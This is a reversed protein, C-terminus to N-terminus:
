RQLKGGTSSPPWEVISEYYLMGSPLILFFAQLSFLLGLTCRVPETFILSSCKSKEFPSGSTGSLDLTFFKIDIKSPPPQYIPLKYLGALSLANVLFFMRAPHDFLANNGILGSVTSLSIGLGAAVSVLGLARSTSTFLQGCPSTTWVGSVGTM